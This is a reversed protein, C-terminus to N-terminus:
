AGAHGPELVDEPLYDWIRPFALDYERFFEHSHILAEAPVRLSSLKKGLGRATWLTYAKRLALMIRWARQTRVLELSDRLATDYRNGALLLQHQLAKLQSAITQAVLRERSNETENELCASKAGALYAPLQSTAREEVLNGHGTTRM